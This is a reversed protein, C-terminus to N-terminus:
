GRGRGQTRQLRGRRNTRAPSFTIIEHDDGTGITRLIGYVEHEYLAIRGEGQAAALIADIDLIMDATLQM